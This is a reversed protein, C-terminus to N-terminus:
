NARRPQSMVVNRPTRNRGTWTRWPRHSGTPYWMDKLWWNRKGLRRRLWRLWGFRRSRGSSQWSQVAHCPRRSLRRNKRSSMVRCSSEGLWLRRDRSLCLTPLEFPLRWILWLSPMTRDQARSLLMGMVARYWLRGLRQVRRPQRRMQWRLLYLLM